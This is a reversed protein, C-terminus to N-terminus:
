SRMVANYAVKICADMIIDLGAAHAPEAAADDVVGLQAWVMKANVAIADDVVGALYVSRRFVNVIDVPEPVAALSPYSIDDGVHTITPNVPYVTYGVRQLFRGVQHSTRYPKDSFGVVAIVRADTLIQRLDDRSYQKQTMRCLGGM